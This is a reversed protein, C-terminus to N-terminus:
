SPSGTSAARDRIEQETFCATCTKGWLSFTNNEKYPQLFVYGDRMFEKLASVPLSYGDVRVEEHDGKGALLEEIKVKM